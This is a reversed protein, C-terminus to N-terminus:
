PAPCLAASAPPSCVSRVARPERLPESRESAHTAFETPWEAEAGFAPVHPEHPPPLPRRCGIAVQYAGSMANECPGAASSCTIAAGSAAPAVLM